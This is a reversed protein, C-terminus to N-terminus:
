TGRRMDFSERRTVLVATAVVALLLFAGQAGERFLTLHPQPLAEGVVSAAIWAFAVGGFTWGPSWVTSLALSLATLGLAPLLWAVAMWGVDPLALSAIGALVVSTGVVAVTRILLLRFSRMPAALGIEYTPDLGPGYAAAVGALPVLPSVVLFALLGREGAHAAVVAFGLAVVIAGLWSLRLSPTAAVLRAVHDPLGLRVLAREVFGSRPADIAVTISGWLRDLADRDVSGALDRRCRDCAILHAELSYARAEEIADRAYADLLERDAHWPESM